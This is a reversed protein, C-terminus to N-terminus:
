GTMLPLLSIYHAQLLVSVLSADSSHWTEQDNSNSGLYVSVTIPINFGASDLLQSENLDAAHKTCSCLSIATLVIALIGLGKTTISRFANMPSRRWLTLIIHPKM